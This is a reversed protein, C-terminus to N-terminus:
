LADAAGPGADLWRVLGHLDRVELLPPPLDEPWAQDTRNVWVAAIGLGRAAHVDRVPDDGVHLTADPGVGAWDMALRFIAPDPKAAGAEAATLARHFANGLPTEALEANGNTVAILCHRERLRALVPAADAYPEVQNRHRRFHDMAADALAVDYRHEALLARLSLLRVATVDHAIEPRAAMLAQRHARLAAADFREILRPAQEALWAILAAEAAQIAPACPWLTDDLDITILRPAGPAPAAAAPAPM